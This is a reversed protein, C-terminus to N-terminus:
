SIEIKEPIIKPSGDDPKKKKKRSLIDSSKPVNLIWFWNTLYDKDVKAMQEREIIDAYENKADKLRTVRFSPSVETRKSISIIKGLEERKKQKSDILEEYEFFNHWVDEKMPPIVIIPIIYDIERFLHERLYEKIKPEYGSFSILILNTRISFCLNKKDTKFKKSFSKIENMLKLMDMYSYPKHSRNCYLFTIEYDYLPADENQQALIEPDSDQKSILTLDFMRQFIDSKLAYDYNRYIRTLEIETNNLGKEISNVYPYYVDEWDEWKGNISTISFPFKMIDDSYDIVPYLDKNIASIIKSELSFVKRKRNDSEIQFESFATFPYDFNKTIHIKSTQLLKDEVQKVDEMSEYDIELVTALTSINFLIVSLYTRKFEGDLSAQIILMIGKESLGIVLLSDDFIQSNESIKLQSNFVKEVSSYIKKIPVLEEIIKIRM